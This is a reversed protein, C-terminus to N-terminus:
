RENSVELIPVEKSLEFPKNRIYKEVTEFRACTPFGASLVGVCVAGPAFDKVKEVIMCVTAGSSVFDDVILYRRAGKDGEVQFPSHTSDKTKRILLLTKNLTMAIPPALLAGSVGTFAVADFNLHEGELRQLANNICRRLEDPDLIHMYDAHCWVPVHPLASPSFIPNPLGIQHAM